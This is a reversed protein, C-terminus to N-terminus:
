KVEKRVTLSWSPYIQKAASQGQLLPVTEQAPFPRPLQMRQIGAHKYSIRPFFASTTAVWFVAVTEKETLKNSVWHFAM